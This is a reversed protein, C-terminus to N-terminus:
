CIPPIARSPVASSTRPNRANPYPTNHCSPRAGPLRTVKGAGTARSCAVSVGRAVGRATGVAVGTCFVFAVLYSRLVHVLGGFGASARSDLSEKANAAMVAAVFCQVVMAVRQAFDDSDFRTCYFTHGSWASWILVFWIM